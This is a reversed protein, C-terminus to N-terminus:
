GPLISPSPRAPFRPFLVSLTLLLALVALVAFVWRWGFALAFGAAVFLPGILNGFSGVVTWRAMMQPERGRNLDMLTAQSLTVFAGSAPFSIVMALLLAPFGAATAILFMAIAIGLGGAVILRKRLNTDGLLMIVPEILTSVVDPLGLLLGVQAYSLALEVRMVPLVAGEIAFNLEDFFEILLFLLTLSLESWTTKTLTRKFM